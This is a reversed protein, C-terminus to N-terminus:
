EYDLAECAAAFRFDRFLREYKRRGTGLRFGHSFRELRSARLRPSEADFEWPHAYMVAPRGRANFRRITARVAWYPACRFFLGGAFPLNIPGWPLVSLPLEM